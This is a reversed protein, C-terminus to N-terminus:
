TGLGGHSRYVWVTAYSINMCTINGNGMINGNCYITMIYRPLNYYKVLRFQQAIQPHNGNSVMIGTLSFLSTTIMSGPIYLPKYSPVDDFEVSASMTNGNCYVAM